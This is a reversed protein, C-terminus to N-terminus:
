NIFVLLKIMNNSNFMLVSPMNGPLLNGAPKAKVSMNNTPHHPSQPSDTHVESSDRSNTDVPPSSQAVGESIRARQSNVLDEETTLKQSESIEDNKPREPSSTTPSRTATPSLLLNQECKKTHSISAMVERREQGVIKECTHVISCNKMVWLFSYKVTVLSRNELVLLTYMYDSYSISSVYGFSCYRGKLLTMAFCFGPPM